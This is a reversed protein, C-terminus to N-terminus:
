DRWDTDRPGGARRVGMGISCDRRDMLGHVAAPAAAFTFRARRFLYRFHVM